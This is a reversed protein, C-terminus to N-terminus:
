TLVLEATGNKSHNPSRPIKQPRTSRDANKGGYSPRSNMRWTSSTPALDRGSTASAPAAVPTTRARCVRSLRIRNPALVNRGATIMREIMRSIPGIMVASTSLPRTPAPMPASNPAIFTVSWISAMSAEATLGYLNRAAVRTNAQTKTIGRSVRAASKQPMRMPQTVSVKNSGIERRRKTSCPNLFTVKWSKRGWM